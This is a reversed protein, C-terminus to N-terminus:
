STPTFIESTRNNTEFQLNKLAVEHVPLIKKLLGFKRTSRNIKKVCIGACSKYKVSVTHFEASVIM